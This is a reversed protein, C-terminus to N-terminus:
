FNEEFYHFETGEDINTHRACNEKLAKGIMPSGCLFVGVKCGKYDRAAQEFIKKWAPRGAYETLECPCDRPQVSNPGGASYASM